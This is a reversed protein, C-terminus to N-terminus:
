KDRKWHYTATCSILVILAHQAALNEKKQQLFFIVFIHEGRKFQMTIGGVSETKIRRGNHCLFHVMYIMNLYSTWSKHTNWLSTAMEFSTSHTKRMGMANKAKNPCHAVHSHWTIFQAVRSFVPFFLHNCKLLSKKVSWFFTVEHKM